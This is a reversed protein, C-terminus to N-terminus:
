SADFLDTTTHKIKLCCCLRGIVHHRWHRILSVRLSDFPERMTQCMLGNVQSFTYGIGISNYFLYVLM